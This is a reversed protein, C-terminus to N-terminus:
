EESYETDEDTVRRLEFTQREHNRSASPVVYTGTILNEDESVTGTYVVRFNMKRTITEVDGNCYAAECPGDHIKTISVQDGEVVGELTSYPYTTSRYVCDPHKALYNKANQASRWSWSAIHEAVIDAYRREYSTSSDIMSGILVNDYVELWAEIEFTTQNEAGSMDQVYHGIWHGEISVIGITFEKHGDPRYSCQSARIM